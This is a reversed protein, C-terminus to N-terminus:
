NRRVPLVLSATMGPYTRRALRGTQLWPYILRLKEVLASSVTLVRLAPNQALEQLVEELPVPASFLM